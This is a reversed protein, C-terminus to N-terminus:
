FHPECEHGVNNICTSNLLGAPYVPAQKLSLWCSFDDNAYPIYQTPIFMLSFAAEKPYNQDFENCHGFVSLTLNGIDLHLLTFTDGWTHCLQWVPTCHWCYPPSPLIPHQRQSVHQSERKAALIYTDRRLQDWMGYFDNVLSNSRKKFCVKESLSLMLQFRYITPDFCYFSIM